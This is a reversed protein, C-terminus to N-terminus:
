TVREPLIGYACTDYAWADLRQMAAVAADAAEDAVAEDVPADELTLVTAVDAAVNPEDGGSVEAIGELAAVVAAQGGLGASRADLAQGLDDVMACRDLRARGGPVAAVEPARGYDHVTVCGALVSLAITAALMAPKNM